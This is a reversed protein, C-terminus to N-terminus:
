GDGEAAEARQAADAQRRRRAGDDPMTPGLPEPLDVSILTTEPTGAAPYRCPGDPRGARQREAPRIHDGRVADAAGELHRAEGAPQRHQLVHM